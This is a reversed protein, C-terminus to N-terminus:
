AATLWARYRDAFDVDRRRGLELEGVRAPWVHLAAAVTTLTINKARRAPRLDTYDSM